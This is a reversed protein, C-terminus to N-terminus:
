FICRRVAIFFILWLALGGLSVLLYMYYTRNLRNLARRGRRLAESTEDMTPLRKQRKRYNACHFYIGSCCCLVLLATYIGWIILATLTLNSAFRLWGIQPYQVFTVLECVVMAATLILMSAFLIRAMKPLFPEQSSQIIWQRIKESFQEAEPKEPDRGELIDEKQFLNRFDM